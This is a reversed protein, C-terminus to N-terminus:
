GVISTEISFSHYSDTRFGGALCPDYPSAFLTKCYMGFMTGLNQVPTNLVVRVDDCSTENPGPGVVNNKRMTKHNVEWHLEITEGREGWTCAKMWYKTQRVVQLLGETETNQVM